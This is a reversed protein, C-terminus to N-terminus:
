NETLTSRLIKNNMFAILHDQFHPAGLDTRVEIIPLHPAYHILSCMLSNTGSLFLLLVPQISHFLTNRVHLRKSHKTRHPTVSNHIAYVPHAITAVNIIGYTTELRSIM